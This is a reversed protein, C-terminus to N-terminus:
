SCCDQFFAGHVKILVAGVELGHDESNNKLSMHM